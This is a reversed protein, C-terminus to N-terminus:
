KSRKDYIKKYKSAYSKRIAKWAILNYYIRNGLIIKLFKKLKVHKKNRWSNDLLHFAYGKYFPCSFYSKSYIRIKENKFYIEQTKGNLRFQTVYELFFDNFIINNTFIKSTDYNYSDLIAKLIISGKQAGIIHTGLICDFQFGLFFNVDLFSDPIKKIFKVDTDLYIGGNKYLIDLRVYDSVFAWNRKNYNNKVYPHKNLDYNDENWEYIKYGLIRWSNICDIIYKPKKKKGFWCYHIVKPIM